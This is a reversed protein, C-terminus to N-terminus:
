AGTTRLTSFRIGPNGANGAGINERSVKLLGADLGIVAAVGPALGPMNAATPQGWTSLLFAM